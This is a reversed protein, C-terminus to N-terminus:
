LAQENGGGIIILLEDINDNAQQITDDKANLEEQRKNFKDARDNKWEKMIENGTM